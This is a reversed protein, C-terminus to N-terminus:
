KGSARSPPSVDGYIIGRGETGVYVRGYIRPDGTLDGLAGFQHAVDNIRAWSSGADKSRFIGYVGKVTGAAYMTPYSSGQAAMGFGVLPASDISALRTFSAGFDTSRYLGSELPLWLDGEHGPVAKPKAEATWGPNGNDKPLRAAREVFTAGGDSSAYVTGTASILKFGQDAFLLSALVVVVCSIAIRLPRGDRKRHRIWPLILTFLAAAFALAAGVCIAIKFIGSGADYGYFKKPNVRDSVVRLGKPAGSCATWTRGFDSTYSPVAAGPAWIITSGDAAVSVTSVYGNSTPGPGAGAPNSVFPKWTSGGDLSYAGAVTGRYDLVGVRAVIAPNSEAYDLGAVNSMVPNTFTEPSVQLDDHRFGGEDGMASLLHAGAPPSVVADIVTEEIGNAGVTWHVMRHSDVNTADDSTWVTNGGQYLIHGSDFPDIELSSNWVGFVSQHNLFPSLSTDFVSYERLSTWTKGGDTSRFIDDGPAWRNWTGVMVTGNRRADAGVAVYGYWLKGKPEPPTIDTWTGDNTDLKYVAGNGIGSLTAANCYTIYLAGDPGLASRMPRPREGDGLATPQGPIAQWSQGHDTSRYIGGTYAAVYVTGKHQPDFRVFDLGMTDSSHSIPFGAMQSWTKGYDKSRWLGNEHTCLYLENPQFPNVALREGGQQGFMDNAGLKFPLDVRKFTTGKDASILIAGNEAWPETYTGAAIYVRGPDTPDLAISEVGTLNWDSRAGGLWDLLPVWIAKTSDWRYAGGVNARIYMLGPVAPHIYIGPMVGGDVIKVSQWVYQESTLPAAGDNEGYAPAMCVIMAGVVLLTRVAGICHSAM